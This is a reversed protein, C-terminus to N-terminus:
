GCSATAKSFSHMTECVPVPSAATGENTAGAQSQLEGGLSGSGTLVVKLSSQAAHLPLPSGWLGWSPNREQQWSPPMGPSAGHKHYGPCQMKWLLFYEM